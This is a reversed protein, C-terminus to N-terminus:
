SDGHAGGAAARAARKARSKAYRIQGAKIFNLVDRDPAVSVRNLGRPLVGFKMRYQTSAWHESYPTKGAPRPQREVYLLMSLWRQRDEASYTEKASPRKEELQADICTIDSQRQPTYGCAPCTAIKPPRLVQCKRCEEAKKPAAEEEHKKRMAPPTPSGDDLQDFHIDTVFGLREHTDSHDFVLCEAKGPATRLGRGIMQVFLMRSRTPRALIVCRVNGDFGTTLVGVNVLVTIAGSALQQLLQQREPGKINGDVYGAPVGAHLFEGQLKRAHARDVAFCLTPRNEGRRLWNEVVDAVLTKSSMVESLETTNYDDGTTKVRTLDVHSPGYVRLPALFKLDILEQTTAGKILGGDYLQGLGRTGPTASFGIFTKEPNDAMLRRYYRSLKHAEDILALDFDPYSERRALTQVSAVQVPRSPHTMRHDGQIVGVAHIGLAALKIVTQDILTLHPVIILVRKGKALALHTIEIMLITKGSGTPAYCIFRKTGAARRAHIEGLMYTQHPHLGNYRHVHERM